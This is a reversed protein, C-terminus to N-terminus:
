KYECKNNCNCDCENEYECENDCERECDCYDENTMEPDFAETSGINNNKECNMTIEPDANETICVTNYNGCVDITKVNNNKVVVYNWKGCVTIYFGTCEIIKYGGCIEIDNGSVDEYKWKGGIEVDEGYDDRDYNIPKEDPQDNSDSILCPLQPEFGIVGIFADEETPTLILNLYDTYVVMLEFKSLNGDNDRDYRYLSSIDVDNNHGINAIDQGSIDEPPQYKETDALPSKGATACGAILIILLAAILTTKIKM